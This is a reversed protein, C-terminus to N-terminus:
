VALITKDTLDLCEMYYRAIFGYMSQRPETSILLREMISKLFFELFHMKAQDIEKKIYKIIEKDVVSVKSTVEEFYRERILRM